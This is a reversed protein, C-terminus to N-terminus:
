GEDEVDRPKAGREHAIETVSMPHELLLEILDKRFM